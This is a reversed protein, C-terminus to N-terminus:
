GHRRRLVLAIVVGGGIAAAFFYWMRPVGILVAATLGIVFLLGPHWPNFRMARGDPLGTVHDISARERLQRIAALVLGGAVAIAFFYRFPPGGRSLTAGIWAAATLGVLLVGIVLSGPIRHMAIWAHRLKGEM